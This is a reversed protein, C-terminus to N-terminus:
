LDLIKVIEDLESRLSPLKNTYDKIKNSKGDEKIEYLSYISGSNNLKELKFFRVPKKTFRNYVVIKNYYYGSKEKNMPYPLFYESGILLMSPKVEVIRPYTALNLPYNAQIFSSKHKKKWVVFIKKRTSLAEKKLGQGNQSIELLSLLQLNEPSKNLEKLILEQSKTFNGSYIEEWIKEQSNSYKEEGSIQDISFLFILLIIIYYNLIKRLDRNLCFIKM